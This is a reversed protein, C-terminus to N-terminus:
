GARRAGRHAAHQKGPPEGRPAGDGAEALAMLAGSSPALDPRHRSPSVVIGNNEADNEPDHGVPREHFSHTDPAWELLFQGPLGNRNKDIGVRFVPPGISGPLPGSVTQRLGAPAPSLLLRVPAATPEAGAPKTGSSQRVLFVPHGALVARRQLRRTVTLDLRAPNGRIELILASVAKLRAAEGAIWLAEGTKRVRSLILREPAIGYDRLLAPAYPLGGERFGDETGIWFLPGDSADGQLVLSALAFAFGTVAGMDRMGAGHIETLAARPLGGNLREDLRPVGTRIFASSGSPIGSHRVLAGDAPVPPLVLREALTGEIRAVERRLAFLTQRAAAERAM